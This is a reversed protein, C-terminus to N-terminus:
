FINKLTQYKIIFMLKLNQENNRNVISINKLNVIDNAEPSFDTIKSINLFAIAKKGDIDKLSLIKYQGYSGSGTISVNTIKVTIDNKAELFSVINIDVSLTSPGSKPSSLLKDKFSTVNKKPIKSKSPGLKKPSFKYTLTM